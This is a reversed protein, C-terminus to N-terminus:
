IKNLLDQQHHDVNMVLEGFLTNAWAFWKRTFNKSDNKHFSEHMFGTGGHTRKLLQLCQVIEDSSSATLGRMIISLPWIMDMGAHPGGIGEGVSGKFYFPNETSLVLKRTNVYIPDTSKTYGLYPLSLLSPVNADDMLNFSGFGNVEYAYVKGFKEHNVIGYKKIAQDVEIALKKCSQALANGPYIASILEAAQNLAVVAFCNAPILFPFITADDSPRFMSCILGVPKVPYGYGSLPVGDTAWFTSRQFTYPGHNLKRQQEIFTDLTLQICKLWTQDFVHTKGTAKWYLYALRIPYCLSDIEWKREHIGPKMTTYDKEWESIKKEDKYFANAYPDLLICKKQRNIVGEILQALKFDDKAFSIYPTIQATSDRLWMADIDGTIVYTDPKNDIMEFDVTTDLTNPYCNEFLWALEKDKLRSKLNEIYTDVAVSTFKRDNKAPRQNLYAFTNMQKSAFGKTLFASSIITSNQIFKRRNLMVHDNFTPM